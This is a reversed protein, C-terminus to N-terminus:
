RIQYALRFGVANVGGWDPSTIVFDEILEYYNFVKINLLKQNQSKKEEVKNISLTIKKNEVNIFANPIFLFVSDIKKVIKSSSIATFQLKKEQGNVNVNFTLLVLIVIVLKKM